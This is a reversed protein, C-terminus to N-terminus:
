THSSGTVVARSAEDRPRARRLIYDAFTTRGLYSPLHQPVGYTCVPTAAPATGNQFHRSYPLNM